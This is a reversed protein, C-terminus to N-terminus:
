AAATPGWYGHWVRAAECCDPGGLPGSEGAPREPTAAAGRRAPKDAGPQLGTQDPLESRLEPVTADDDGAGVALGGCREQQGTGRSGSAELGQRVCGA